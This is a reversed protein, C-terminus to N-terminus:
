CTIDTETIDPTLDTNKRAVCTPITVRKIFKILKGRDFIFCLIVNLYNLAEILLSLIKFLFKFDWKFVFFFFFFRM